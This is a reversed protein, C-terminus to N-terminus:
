TLWPRINSKHIHFTEIGTTFADAEAEIGQRGRKTNHTPAVIRSAEDQGTGGNKLLDKPLFIDSTAVIQGKIELRLFEIVVQGTLLTQRCIRGKDVIDFTPGLSGKDNRRAHIVIDLDVHFDLLDKM